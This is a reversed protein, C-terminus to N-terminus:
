TAHQVLRGPRQDLGGAPQASSGSAALTDRVPFRAALLLMGLLVLAKVQGAVTEEVSRIFVLPGFLLGFAFFLARGGPLSSGLGQARVTLLCLAAFPIYMAQLTYDFSTAPLLVMFSCLALAQNFPPATWFQWAYLGLALLGALLTYVTVGHLILQPHHRLGLKLLAWASHDYGNVDGLYRASYVALFLRIGKGTFAAARVINRDLFLFGAISTAAASLLGTATALYQRRPLYLGFFFLPYIKFAAAFGLLVAALQPRGTFYCALAGALMLWLISEINGRELSFYIPWSLLTTAAVFLAAKGRALGARHLARGFLTAALLLPPLASLLNAGPFTVLDALRYLFWYLFACPAPYAWLQNGPILFRSTSFANFRLWYCELDILPNAPVLASFALRAGQLHWRVLADLLSLLVTAALVKLFLTFEPPLPLHRATRTAAAETWTVQTVLM